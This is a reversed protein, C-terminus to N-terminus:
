WIGYQSMPQKMQRASSRAESSFEYAISTTEIPRLQQTSERTDITIELGRELAFAAVQGASIRIEQEQLKRAYRDLREWTEAKMPVKRSVTWTPDSPRGGRSILRSRTISALGKLGLFDGPFGPVAIPAEAGLLRRAEEISLTTRKRSKKM